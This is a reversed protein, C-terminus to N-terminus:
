TNLDIIIKDAVGIISRKFTQFTIHKVQNDYWFMVLKPQSTGSIVSAKTLFQVHDHKTEHAKPFNPIESINMKMYFLREKETLVESNEYITHRILIRAGSPLNLHIHPNDLILMDYFNRRLQLGQDLHYTRFNEDKKFVPGKPTDQFRLCGFRSSFAGGQHYGLIVEDDFLEDTACGYYDALNDIVSAPCDYEGLEYRKLSSISMSKYGEFEQAVQEITYGFRERMIAGIRPYKNLNDGYEEREEKTLM